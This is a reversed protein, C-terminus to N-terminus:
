AAAVKVAVKLAMETLSVAANLVDAWKQRSAADLDAQRLLGNIETIEDPSFRVIQRVSNDFTDALAEYLDSRESELPGTIEPSSHFEQIEKNIDAIKNILDTQKQRTDEDKGKQFRKGLAAALQTGQTQNEQLAEALEKIRDTADQSTAQIEEILAQNNKWFETIWKLSNEFEM